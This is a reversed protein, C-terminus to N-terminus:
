HSSGLSKRRCKKLPKGVSKQYRHHFKKLSFSQSLKLRRTMTPFKSNPMTESSHFRSCNLIAESTKISFIKIAEYAQQTLSTKPIHQNITVSKTLLLSTTTTTPFCCLAQFSKAAKLLAESLKCTSLKQKKSKRISAVYTKFSKGAKLLTENIESQLLTRAITKILTLLM